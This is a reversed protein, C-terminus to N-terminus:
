IICILIYYIIYIYIYVFIIYTYICTFVCLAHLKRRSAHLPETQGWSRVCDICRIKSVDGIRFRFSAIPKMTWPATIVWKWIKWSPVYSETIIYSQKEQFDLKLLSRFTHKHTHAHKHWTLVGHAKFAYTNQSEQSSAPKSSIQLDNGKHCLMRRSWGQWYSCVFQCQWLWPRFRMKAVHYGSTDWAIGWNLSAVSCPFELIQVAALCRNPPYSHLEDLTHDHKRWPRPDLLEPFISSMRLFSLISLPHKSAHQSGCEMGTSGMLQGASMMRYRPQSMKETKYLLAM